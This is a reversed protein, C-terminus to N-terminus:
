IGLTYIKYSEYIAKSIAPIKENFGGDATDGRSQFLFTAHEKLALKIDDPVTTATAGFGAVFEIQVSQQRTDATPWSNGDVLYISGYNESTTTYYTASSLTTLVTDIYYKVSTISQLKGRQLEIGQSSYSPFSNIHATYTKNIIDRRMSSEAYSTVTKILGTLYTDQSTDSVDLIAQEKLETVTIATVAAPTKLVYDINPALIMM